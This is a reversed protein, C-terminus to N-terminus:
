AHNRGKLRKIAANRYMKLRTKVPEFRILVSFDEEFDICGRKEAQSLLQKIKQRIEPVYSSYAEPNEMAELLCLQGFANRLYRRLCQDALADLNRARFFRIQQEMAEWADLHRPNWTSRTISDKNVYYAYFPAPIWALKEEGFLIRYTLFEDEHLKGVPFRQQRFCARKYLKGCAITAHIYNESYFQEPTWVQPVLQNPSIEPEEGQTEGFGCVVVPVQLELAAKQMRELTEAHLWDDSDLFMLWQADSNEAIWDLGANRAASLGGNEQHIVHVRRDKKEYEDCIQPSGDPSGDDVLILELNRHTQNLVSDACRHLYAEVRYVPVIVSIKEM